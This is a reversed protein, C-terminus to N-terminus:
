MVAPVDISGSGGEGAPLTPTNEDSVSAQPAAKKCKTGKDKRPARAKKAIQIVEGSASVIVNWADSFVIGTKHRKPATGAAENPMTHKEAGSTAPPTRSAGCIADPTPTTVEHQQEPDPVTIAGCSDTTANDPSGAHEAALLPQQVWAEFEDRSLKHFRATNTEWARVLQELEIRSRIQGPPVFKALPWGEIILAYKATIHDNFNSYFM